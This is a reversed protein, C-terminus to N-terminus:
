WLGEEVAVLADFITDIDDSPEVVVDGGTIIAAYLRHNGDLVPWEASDMLLSDMVIVPLSEPPNQVFSAVRRLHKETTDCFGEPFPEMTYFMDRTVWYDPAPASVEWPWEVTPDAIERVTEASARYVPMGDVESEGLPVETMSLPIVVAANDFLVPSQPKGLLMHKCNGCFGGAGKPGVAHVGRKGTKNKCIAKGTMFGYYAM